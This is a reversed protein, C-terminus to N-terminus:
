WSGGVPAMDEEHTSPAASSVRSGLCPHCCFHCFSLVLHVVPCVIPGAVVPIGVAVFLSVLNMNETLQHRVSCPM